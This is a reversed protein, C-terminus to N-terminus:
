SDLFKQIKDNLLSVNFSLESVAESINQGADLISKGLAEMGGMPTAAGNNGLAKVQDALELLADTLKAADEVDPLQLLDQDVVNTLTNIAEVLDCNSCSPQEPHLPTINGPESVSM